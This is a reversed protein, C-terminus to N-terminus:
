GIGAEKTAAATSTLLKFLSPHTFVYLCGLSSIAAKADLLETVKSESGDTWIRKIQAAARQKAEDSPMDALEGKQYRVIEEFEDYDLWTGHCTPCFDIMVESEGFRTTVLLKNKCAPCHRNSKVASAKEIAEIEDNLWRLNGGIEADIKDRLGKIEGKALWLGHCASCGEFKMGYAQYGELPAACAPCSHGTKGLDKAHQVPLVPKTKVVEGTKRTRRAFHPLHTGTIFESFGEGSAQAYTTLYANMKELLGGAIWYGSCNQCRDLVIDEQEYFDVRFLRLNPCRPCKHKSQEQEDLERSMFEPDSGLAQVLMKNLEGRDLWLGGCSECVDYTLRHLLTRADYTVMEKTCDLCKM